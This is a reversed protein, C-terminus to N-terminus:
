AGEVGDAAADDYIVPGPLALSDIDSPTRPRAAEHAAQAQEPTLIRAPPGALEVEFDGARFRRVHPPLDALLALFDHANM